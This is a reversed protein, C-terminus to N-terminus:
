SLIFHGTHPDGFDAGAFFIGAFIETIGATFIEPMRQSEPHYLYGFHWIKQEYAHIQKRLFRGAALCCAKEVIGQVSRLDVM